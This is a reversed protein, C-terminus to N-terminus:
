AATVFNINHNEGNVVINVTKRSIVQAAPAYTVDRIRSEISGCFGNIKKSASVDRPLIERELLILGSLSGVRSLAVYVQNPRTAQEMVIAAKSLTMGQVKDITTAFAPVFPFNEVRGVIERSGGSMGHIDVKIRGVDYFSSVGDRDIRIGVSDVHDGNWGVSVVTGMSGNAWRRNIGGDNVVFMVRMGMKIMVPKDIQSRGLLKEYPMHCAIMPESVHCRGPMRDIIQRNISAAKNNTITLFHFGELYLRYYDKEEVFRSNIIRGAKSSLKGNRIEDLLGQFEVDKDQRFNHRLFCFEFGDRLFGNERMSRANYFGADGDYEPYDKPILFADYEDVVPELQMLDGIFILRLGGFPLNNGRVMKAIRDIKDLTNFRVMSIEDVLLVNAMEILSINSAHLNPTFDNRTHPKLGFVSDITRGNINMAAIGTPAALIMDDRSERLKKILHSKGSGARGLILMNSTGHKMNELLQEYTLDSM